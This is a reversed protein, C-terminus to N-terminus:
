TGAPKPAGAAAAAVRDAELHIYYTATLLM